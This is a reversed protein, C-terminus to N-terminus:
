SGKILTAPVGGSLEVPVALVPNGVTLGGLIKVPGNLTIETAGVEVYVAGSANKIVAKDTYLFVAPGDAHQVQITNGQPDLTIAHAKTVAGSGDLAPAYIVVQTGGGTTARLHVLGGDYHALVVDGEQLQGARADLRLDRWALPVIRGQIRGLITEAAGAPRLGTAGKTAQEARPRVLLGLAGFMALDSVEEGAARVSGVVASTAAAVKSRVLRALDLLM